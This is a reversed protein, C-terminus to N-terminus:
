PGFEIDVQRGAKGVPDFGVHEVDGGAVDAADEHLVVLDVLFLAADQLPVVDQQGALPRGAVPGEFPEVLGGFLNVVGRDVVKHPVQVVQRDEAHPRLRLPIRASRDISGATISLM